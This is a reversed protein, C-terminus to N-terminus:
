SEQGRLQSNLLTATDIIQSVESKLTEVQLQSEALQKQLVELQQKKSALKVEAYKENPFSSCPKALQEMADEGSFISTSRLCYEDVLDFTKDLGNESTWKEVHAMVSQQVVTSLDSAIEQAAKQKSLTEAEQSANEFVERVLTDKFVNSLTQTVAESLLSQRSQKATQAQTDVEMAEEVVM